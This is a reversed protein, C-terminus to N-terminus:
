KKGEYYALYKKVKALYDPVRLGKKFRPEGTNYMQIADDLPYRRILHAIYRTGAEISTAPNKLDNLTVPRGLFASATAPTTQMLGASPDGPNVAEPNFTSETRIFAKILAVPVGHRKSANAILDDFESERRAALVVATEGMILVGGIALIGILFWKNM